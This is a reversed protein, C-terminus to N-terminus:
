GEERWGMSERGEDSIRAYELLLRLVFVEMDERRLVKEAWLRGDSAIREAVDDRGGVGQAKNGLFFEMIGYVDAFTNDMPVFHKWAIIRSDHWEQYITAKIPLSTSFLFARYRGSFSNGDIDPLYKYAYQKKMPMAKQVSFFPNTYTCTPPSPDPFCLLHVFATDAWTAIWNALAGLSGSNSSTAADANQAALDYVGDIPLAFNVAQQEGSQALGVTTANVM